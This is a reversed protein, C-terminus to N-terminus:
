IDFNRHSSNIFTPLQVVVQPRPPPPAVYYQANGGPQFGQPQNM